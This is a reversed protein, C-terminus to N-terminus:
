KNVHSQRSQRLPCPHAPNVAHLSCHASLLSCLASFLSCLASLSSFKGVGSIAGTSALGNLAITVLFSARNLPPTNQHALFSIRAHTHKEENALLHTNTQLLHTDTSQSSYAYASCYWNGIAMYRERKTLSLSTADIVVHSVDVEVDDM